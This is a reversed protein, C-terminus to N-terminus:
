CKQQIPCLLGAEKVEDPVEQCPVMVGFTHRVMNLARIDGDAVLDTVPFGLETFEGHARGFNGLRWNLPLHTDSKVYVRDATVTWSLQDIIGPIAEAPRPWTISTLVKLIPELQEVSAYRFTDVTVRIIPM